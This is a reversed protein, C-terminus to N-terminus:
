EKKGPQKQLANLREQASPGQDANVPPEVFGEMYFVHIEAASDLPILRVTKKQPGRRRRATFVVTLEATEGPAVRRPVLRGRTCGCSARVYKHEYTLDGVNRVTFVHTIVASQDVTGFNFVPEDCVLKPGEVAGAMLPFLLIIPLWKM